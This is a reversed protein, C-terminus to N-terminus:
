PRPAALLRWKGARQAERWGALPAPLPEDGFIVIEDFWSFEDASAHLLNGPLARGPRFQVPLHEVGASLDHGVGGRDATLWEGLHELYIHRSGLCSNLGLLVYGHRRDPSSAAIVEALGELRRQFRVHFRATEALSVCALLAMAIRVWRRLASADVLLLALAAALVPLRVSILYIGSLTKPTVVYIICAAFFLAAPARPEARRRWVFCGVMVVTVVVPGAVALFGEPGYNRFFWMLHSMAGYDNEPWAGATAARTLMTWGMPAALLAPLTLSLGLRRLAQWRDARVLAITPLGTWTTPKPSM